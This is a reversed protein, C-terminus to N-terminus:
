QLHFLYVCLYINKPDGFPIKWKVPQKDEKPIHEKSLLLLTSPQSPDRLVRGNYLISTRLGCGAIRWRIVYGFLAHM